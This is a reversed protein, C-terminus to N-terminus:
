VEEDDYYRLDNEDGWFSQHRGDNDYYITADIYGEKFLTWAEDVMFPQGGRAYQIHNALEGWGKHEFMATAHYLLEDESITLLLNRPQQAEHLSGPQPDNHYCHHNFGQMYSTFRGDIYRLSENHFYFFHWTDDQPSLRNVTDRWQSLTFQKVILGIFCRILIQIRCLENAVPAWPNAHVASNKSKTIDLFTYPMDDRFLHHTKTFFQLRKRATVHDQVPRLEWKELFVVVGPPPMYTKVGLPLEQIQQLNHDDKRHNKPFSVLQQAYIEENKGQQYM